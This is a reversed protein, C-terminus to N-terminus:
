MINRDETDTGGPGIAIFRYRTSAMPEVEDGGSKGSFQFTPDNPTSTATLTDANYANWNLVAGPYKIFTEPYVIGLVNGRQAEPTSGPTNSYAYAIDAKVLNFKSADIPNDTLSGGLQLYRNVYGGLGIIDPPRGRLPYDGSRGFRGSLYEEAIAQVIPYFYARIDASNQFGLNNRDEQPNNDTSPDRLIIVNEVYMMIPTPHFIFGPGNYQKGQSPDKVVSPKLIDFTGNADDYASDLLQIEKGQNFQMRDAKPYNRGPVVNRSNLEYWTMPYAGQLLEFEHIMSGTTKNYRSIVELQRSSVMYESTYEGEGEDYDTADSIDNDYQSLDALIFAVGGPNYKWTDSAGPEPEGGPPFSLNTITVELYHPGPIFKLDTSAFTIDLVDGGDTPSSFDAITGVEVSPQGERGIAFTAGNDAQAYLRFGALAPNNRGDRITFPIRVTQPVNTLTNTPYKDFLYDIEEDEMDSENGPFIAYVKMFESWASMAFHRDQPDRNDYLEVDRYDPYSLYWTGTPFGFRKGAVEMAKMHISDRDERDNWSYRIRFNCLNGDASDPPATVLLNAAGDAGYGDTGNGTDDGFRVYHPKSVDVSVPLAVPPEDGATGECGGLQYEGKLTQDSITGGVVWNKQNTDPNLGCIAAGGRGADYPEGDELPLTSVGGKGWDGGNGGTGGPSSCNGGELITGTPCVGCVNDTGEEGLTKEQPGGGVMPATYRWGAGDGGQGGIGQIPATSKVINQCLGTKQFSMNDFDDEDIDGCPIGTLEVSDPILTDGVNCVPDLGCGTSEDLSTTVRYTRTCDHRMDEMSSGILEGMAGQEGGGGGGWVRANEHLFIDTQSGTHVIKLAVGGDKGPDSKKPVGIGGTSSRSNLLDANTNTDRIQWAIGAPNDLWYDNGFNSGNLVTFTIVHQGQNINTLIVTTSPTITPNGAVTGFSQTTLTSGNPDVLTFTGNNDCAMEITISAIGGAPVDLIARGTQIQDIFPDITTFNNPAAPYVAYDLMFQTWVAATEPSLQPNSIAFWNKTLGSGDDYGGTSHYGGLGASGYIAGTNEVNIRVNHAPVVANNPESPILRAAAIKNKGNGGSGRNGDIGMDGSYVVDKIFIHKEINRAVNGNLQNISDVGQTGSNSWDVGNDGSFRGMSLQSIAGAPGTGSSNTTAYYRKVSGRFQSSKWDSVSAINENETSDPVIPNRELVNVNRRLESASIPITNDIPFVEKFYQRMKSFKIPGTGTFYPGAKEIDFFAATHKTAPGGNFNKDSIEVDDTVTGLGFRSAQADYNQKVESAVLGSGRYFRFIAFKGNFHYSSINTGLGWLCNLSTNPTFGASSYNTTATKTQDIDAMLQGNKYFKLDNGIRSIVVQTWGSYSNNNTYTGPSNEYITSGSFGNGVAFRGGDNIGEIYVHHKNSAGNGINDRYLYHTQKKGYLDFWFELAYDGTGLDNWIDTDQSLIPLTGATPDLVVHGGNSSNFSINTSDSITCNSGNGSLDTVATTSVSPNYCNVNGFDIHQRLNYTVINTSPPSPPDPDPDSVTGTTFKITTSDTLGAFFNGSADNFANSGINVYFTTNQALDSAPNVTIQSTGSGTVKSDTAVISEVITGDVKFISISGGGQATVVESFNLVINANLEVGTANTAPVTSVLTPATTDPTPVSTTLADWIVTPSGGQISHSDAWSSDNVTTGESGTYFDSTDQEGVKSTLWSKIDTNTWTRNTELKTAILGATIPCASSTGNFIFDGSRISQTSNYTYFSDYRSFPVLDYYTNSPINPYASAALSKASLESSVDDSSANGAVAYCDIYDGSASYNSKREKGDSSLEGDLAGVNIVGSAANPYGGRNLTKRYTIQDMALFFTSSSLPTNDNDSFYNNYDPHNSKVQKQNQNGAAVVFIVGSAILENAATIPVGSVPECQLGNFDSKNTMFRPASGGSGDTNGTMNWSTYQVGSTTGDTTAPRYYYYGSPGVGVTGTTSNFRRGWSNSSITPNKTNDSARNPKIQHFIKQVDFGDGDNLGMGNLGYLNLYWKNANYAWGYQRGYAQSACATGHQEPVGFITNPPLATNSGNCNARTYTSPIPVQGFDNNGTANGGNASSVYKASRCALLNNAWWDRAVTEVPVTTGDWRTTLRSGTDAEFFDPDLYYPADLVLDLVDCAGNTASYAFGNKLANGGIYNSPATTSSSGGESGSSTSAKINSIRSPNMFEIHAIWASTDAVILDIDKGTGLQQIRDNFITQPDGSTVWPNKKTTHRYLQSSCRNLLSSPAPNEILSDTNSFGNDYKILIQQQHKVNSSYRYVPNQSFEDPDQLYTGPYSSAKINVYDVKSNSRLESAETETLLYVGRVDSSLCDNICECKNTPINDELSGDKMLEAHIFEWDSKQFCGVCYEKKVDGSPEKPLTDKYSQLAAQRGERNELLNNITM